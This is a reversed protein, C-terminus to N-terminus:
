PTVAGQIQGDPPNDFIIRNQPLSRVVDPDPSNGPIRLLSQGVAM